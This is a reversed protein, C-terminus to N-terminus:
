PKVVIAAADQRRKGVGKGTGNTTIWRRWASPRRAAESNGARLRAEGSRIKDSAIILYDDVKYGVFTGATGVDFFRKALDDRFESRQYSVNALARSPALSAAAFLGLAHRRNIM